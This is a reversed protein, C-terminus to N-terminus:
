ARVLQKQAYGALRFDCFPRADHQHFSSLMPKARIGSALAFYQDFGFTLDVSAIRAASATSDHFFFIRWGVQCVELEEPELLGNYRADTGALFLGHPHSGHAAADRHTGPLRQDDTAAQRSGEAAEGTEQGHREEEAAEIQQRISERMRQVCSRHTLMKAAASEMVRAVM